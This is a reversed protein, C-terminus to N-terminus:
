DTKPQIPPLQVNFSDIGDAQFPRMASALVFDVNPLQLELRPRKANGDDDEDERSRKRPGSTSPTATAGSQTPVFGDITRAFDHSHAAEMEFLTDILGHQEAVDLLSNMLESFDDTLIEGDLAPLREVFAVLSDTFEMAEEEDQHYNDTTAARHLLGSVNAFALLGRGLDISMSRNLEEWAADDEAYMDEDDEFDMEEDDEDDTDMLATTSFYGRLDAENLLDDILELDAMSDMDSSFDSDSDSMTDFSFDDESASTTDSSADYDSTCVTDSSSDPNSAFMTDSSADHNSISMTDSISDTDSPYDMDLGSSIDSTYDVDLGSDFDPISDAGIISDADMLVSSDALVLLSEAFVESDDNERLFAPTPANLLMGSINAYALLGNTLRSRPTAMTFHRPNLCYNQDCRPRMKEYVTLQLIRIYNIHPFQALASPSLSSSFDM